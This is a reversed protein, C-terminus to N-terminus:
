ANRMVNMEVNHETSSITTPMEVFALEDDKVTVLIFSNDNINGKLVEEALADEVHRQIIRRLPRAGYAPDFGQRIIWQKADPSLEIIMGRENVQANVDDIMIDVIKDIHEEALMHFIITDDLRNLFEPNFM